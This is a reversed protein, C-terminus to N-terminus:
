RRKRAAATVTAAAASAILAGLSGVVAGTGPNFDDDAPNTIVNESGTDDIEIVDDNIDEIDYISDDTTDEIPEEYDEDDTKNAGSLTIDIDSIVYESAHSIAITFSGDTNVSLSNKSLKTIEGSDSIYYLRAKDPDIGAVKSAPVTVQLTMGFDGKQAPKIVVSGTNYDDAAASDEEVVTIEMALNIPKAETISAPDITIGYETGDESKIEFTITVNSNALEAVAAEQVTVNGGEDERAEVTIEKEGNKAAEALVNAMGSDTIVSPAATNNDTAADEESSTPPTITTNGSPLPTTPTGQGSYDVAGASVSTLMAAAILTCIAIKGRKM